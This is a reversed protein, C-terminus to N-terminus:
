DNQRESGTDAASRLRDELYKSPDQLFKKHCKDSCFVFTEGHYTESHSGAIAKDRDLSMGCVPDVTTGANHAVAPAPATADHEENVARLVAPKM